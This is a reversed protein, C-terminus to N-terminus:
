DAAVVRVRAWRVETRSGVRVWYTVLVRDDRLRIGTPFGFGFARMAELGDTADRSADAPMPEFIYRRAETRWSDDRGLHVMAAVIGPRQTRINGLALLRDDGLWVTSLTQCGLDTPMPSGWHLGGDTSIAYSNPLDSVDNMRITWATAIVRGRDLEAFKHELYGREGRVDTFVTTPGHWTAGGDVSRLVLVREGLRGADITAAPALLTGDAM